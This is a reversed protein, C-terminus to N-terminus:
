DIDPMNAGYLIHWREEIFEPNKEIVSKSNYNFSSMLDNPVLMTPDLLLHPHLPRVWFMSKKIDRLLENYLIEHHRMAQEIQNPNLLEKMELLVALCKRGQM